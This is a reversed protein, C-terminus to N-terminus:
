NLSRKTAAQPQIEISAQSTNVLTTVCPHCVGPTPKVSCTSLRCIQWRGTATAEILKHMGGLLPGLLPGILLSIMFMGSATGRQEPPFIDAIVGNGTTLFAAVAFV